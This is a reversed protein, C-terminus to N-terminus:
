FIEFLDCMEPPQGDLKAIDALWTSYLSASPGTIWAASVCGSAFMDALWIQVRVIWEM